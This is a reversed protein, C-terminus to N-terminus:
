TYKNIFRRSGHFFEKSGFNPLLPFQFIVVDFQQLALAQWSNPQTVDFEFYVPIGQVKLQEIHQLGYKSNLQQFSDLVSVTLHKPKYNKYLSLSFSGDGDGVTLIRWDPNIVM